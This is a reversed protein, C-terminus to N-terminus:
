NNNPANAAITAAPGQGRDRYGHQKEVVDHKNANKFFGIENILDNRLGCSLGSSDAWSM